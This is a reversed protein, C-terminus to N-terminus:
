HSGQSPRQNKPKTTQTKPLELIFRTTKNESDLWLDGGHQQVISRTISLGLGTGAGIQKTTFFPQMIKKALEDNIRPGSDTIQVIAKQPHDKIAINIWRDELKEIADIANSILNIFVQSIQVGRCEVLVEQHECDLKLNVKKFKLKERFFETSDSLIKNINCIEFSDNSGNKSLSCMSKVIASVRDVTTTIIDASRKLASKDFNKKELIYKLHEAHGKIITIPNNIEHAIGGAMEGLQALKSSEIIQVKQKQVKKLLHELESSYKELNGHSEQVTELMHRIETIDHGVVYLLPGRRNSLGSIKRINWHFHKNNSSPGDAALDFNKTKLNSEKKLIEINKKFTKWNKQSFLLSLQSYIANGVNSGLLNESAKNAKLIRANQDIILVLEHLEYVFNESARKSRELQVVIEHTINLATIPSIETEIKKDSEASTKKEVNM